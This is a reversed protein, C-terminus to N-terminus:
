KRGKEYLEIGMRVETNSFEYRGIFHGKYELKTLYIEKTIENQSNICEIRDYIVFIDSNVKFRTGIHYKM